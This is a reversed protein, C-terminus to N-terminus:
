GVLNMHARFNKYTVRILPQLQDPDKACRFNIVGDFDRAPVKDRLEM